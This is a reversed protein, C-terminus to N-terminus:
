VSRRQLHVHSSLVRKKGSPRQTHVTNAREVVREECPTQNTVSRVRQLSVKSTEVNPARLSAAAALRRRLCALEGRNQEKKERKSSTCSGMNQQKFKKTSSSLETEDGATKLNWPGILIELPHLRLAKRRSSGAPRSPCSGSQTQTRKGQEVHVRTAKNSQQGNRKKQSEEKREMKREM